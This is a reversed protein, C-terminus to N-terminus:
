STGEGVGIGVGQVRSGPGSGSGSCSCSGSGSGWRGNGVRVGCGWRGVGVGCGWRGVRPLHPTGLHEFEQKVFEVHRGVAYADLLWSALPLLRARGLWGHPPLERILHMHMHISMHMDDLGATPLCSVFPTCTCTSLCTCACVLVLIRTHWICARARWAHICAHACMGHMFGMYMCGMYWIYVMGGRHTRWTHMHWTAHTYTCSRIRLLHNIISALPMCM